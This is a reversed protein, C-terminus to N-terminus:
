TNIHLIHLKGCNPCPVIVKSATLYAIIDIEEWEFTNKCKKCLKIM